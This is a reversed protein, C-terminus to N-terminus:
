HVALTRVELVRASDEDTAACLRHIDDFVLVCPAMAVAYMFATYVYQAPKHNTNNTPFSYFLKSTSKITSATSSHGRYSASYVSGATILIFPLHLSRCVEVVVSTCGSGSRGVILAHMVRGESISDDSSNSIVSNSFASLIRNLVFDVLNKHALSLVNIIPSDNIIHRQLPVKLNYGNNAITTYHPLFHGGRSDDCLLIPTTDDVIVSTFASALAPRPVLFYSRMLLYDNEDESDCSTNGDILILQMKGSCNVDIQQFQLITTYCIYPNIVMNGLLAPELNLETCVSLQIIRGRLTTAFSSEDLTLANSSRIQLKFNNEIPCLRLSSQLPISIM